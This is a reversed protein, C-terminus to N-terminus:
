SLSVERAVPVYKVRLALALGFVFATMALALLGAWGATLLLSTPRPAYALTVHADPASFLTILEVVAMPLVITTLGVGLFAKAAGEYICDQTTAPERRIWRQLPLLSPRGRLVQRLSDALLLGDFIVFLALTGLSAAVLGPDAM